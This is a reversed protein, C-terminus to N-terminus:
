PNADESNGPRPYIGYNISSGDRLYTADGDTTEVDVSNDYDIYDYQLREYVGLAVVALLCFALALIIIVLAKRQRECRAMASEYVIYPVAKLDEGM